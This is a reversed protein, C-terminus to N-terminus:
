TKRAVVEEIVGLRFRDTHEVTFGLAEVYDLPHRLLSFRSKATFPALAQEVWRVPAIPSCAFDLILLRGGPKLVRQMEQAALHPDPVTSMLLTSNVTDFREDRFDLQQADGVRLSVDLGLDQARREAIALMAPSLDVGTLTVDPPYFPLNAGTGVAIELTDGRARSCMRSRGAGLMIRDFGEMWSDYNRASQDYYERVRATEIGVSLHEAEADNM